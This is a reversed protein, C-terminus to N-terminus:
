PELGPDADLRALDDDVLGVRGERRALCDREGCPELLRGAGALHQDPRVRVPQGIPPQLSLIDTREVDLAETVPDPGPAGLRHKVACRLAGADRRREDPALGLEFQQLVRVFAGNAIASSVQKRKVAVGADALAPERLLEHFPEFARGHEDAARQGVAFAHRVPRKRLHDLGGCPDGVVVREFHRDLLQAFGALVFRDGVQEPEGGAHQFRHLALPTLLLDGPGRALPDLPHGLVLREHKGEFVDVPGLVRQEVQDLM